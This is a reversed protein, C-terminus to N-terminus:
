SKSSEDQTECIAVSVIALFCLAVLELHHPAQPRLCVLSSSLRSFGVTAISKWSRIAIILTKLGTAPTDLLLRM